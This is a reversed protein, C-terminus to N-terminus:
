AKKAVMTKKPPHRTMDATHPYILSSGDYLPKSTVYLDRYGRQHLSKKLDEYNAASEIWLEWFMRNEFIINNVSDFVDPPLQLSKLDSVRVPNTEPGNLVMVVRAGKRDRRALYLYLRSM